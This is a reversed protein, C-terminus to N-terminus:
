TQQWLVAHFLFRLLHMAAISLYICHVTTNSASSLCRLIVSLGRYMGKNCLSLAVVFQPILNSAAQTYLLGNVQHAFEQM